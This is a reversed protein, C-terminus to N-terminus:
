RGQKTRSFDSEETPDVGADLADWLVRTSDPNEALDEEADARRVEPTEYRSHGKSEQGPRLILIAGGVVGIAAALLVLVIGLSHVDGSIVRAWESIQVPDSEKQTAAGSRLLSQARALDVDSSLLQVARFSATAALAVIVVGLVRRVMPQVAMSLILAAVMALALPVLAPDWVSGVLEKTSAGAKDDDVAVTVFKLRSAGWLGVASLVVCLLAIQRIRKAKQTADATVDEEASVANAASATSKSM